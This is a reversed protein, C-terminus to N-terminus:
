AQVAMLSRGISLRQGSCHRSHSTSVLAAVHCPSLAARLLQVSSRCLQMWTWRGGAVHCCPTRALLRMWSRRVSSRRSLYRRTRRLSVTAASDCPGFADVVLLRHRHRYQLTNLLVSEFTQHCGFRRSALDGSRESGRGSQSDDERGRTTEYPSSAAASSAPPDRSTRRSWSEPSTSGPSATTTRERASSANSMNGESVVCPRRWRRTIWRSGAARRLGENWRANSHRMSTRSESGDSDDSRAASSRVARARTTNVVIMRAPRSSSGSATRASPCVM